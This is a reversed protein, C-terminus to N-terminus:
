PSPSGGTGNSPPQSAGNPHGNPQAAAAAMDMIEKFMMKQGMDLTTILVQIQEPRLSNGFESVLMQFPRAEGTVESGGGIKAAIVTGFQLLKQFGANARANKDAAMMIQFEKEIKSSRADEVERRVIINEARLEANEKNLRENTASLSRLAGDFMQVNVRMLQSAHNSIVQADQRSGSSAASATQLAMSDDSGSFAPQLAFSCIQRGRLFQTTRVFFRHRGAPKADAEGEAIDLMNSVFDPINAMEFLDPDNARVWERVQEDKFGGGPSFMLEVSVCQHGEKKTFESALFGLLKQHLEASM